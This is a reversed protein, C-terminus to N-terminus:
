ADCTQYDHAFPPLETAPTLRVQRGDYVMGPPVNKKETANEM